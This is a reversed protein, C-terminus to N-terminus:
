PTLPSLGRNVGRLLRIATKLRQVHSGFRIIVNSAIQSFEDTVFKMMREKMQVPPMDEFISLNAMNGLIQKKSELSKQARIVHKVRAIEVYNPNKLAHEGVHAQVHDWLPHNPWRSINQDSAGRPEVYRIVKTAHVMAANVRERFDALTRIERKYLEKKPLRIEVRHVTQTIDSPDIGWIEFWAPKRRQIVESRKDYITVQRNPMTGATITEFTQGRSHTNIDMKYAAKKVRSHAVFHSPDLAIGANLFDMAYDTRNLSIEVKFFGITKLDDFVREMAKEWGYTALALARIQVHANWQKRSVNRKLRIVHGLDGDFKLIFAYGGGTGSSSIFGRRQDNGFTVPIDRQEKAAQEKHVDFYKLTEAKTSGKVAFLITDFGSYIIQM